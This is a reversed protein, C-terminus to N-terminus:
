WKGFEDESSDDEAFVDRGTFGSASAEKGAPTWTRLRGQGSPGVSMTRSPPSLSLRRAASASSPKTPSSLLLEDDDDDTAPAPLRPPDPLIETPTPAFKSPSAKASTSPLPRASASRPAERPGKSLPPTSLGSTRRSVPEDASASTSALNPMSRSAIVKSPARSRHVPVDIILEFSHQRPKARPKKTVSAPKAPTLSFAASPSPAPRRPPPTPTPTPRQFVQQQTSKSPGAAPEPSVARRLPPSMDGFLEPSPSRRRPRAKPASSSSPSPSDIYIVERLPSTSPPPRPPGARGWSQPARGAAFSSPPTPLGAPRARSIPKSPASLARSSPSSPLPRSKARSSSPAPSALRFHEVARRLTSTTSSPRAPPLPARQPTKAPSVILSSSRRRRPTSAPPPPTAFLDLDDDDAATVPAPLMENGPRPTARSSPDASAGRALAELQQFELVEKLREAEKRRAERFVLSPQSPLEEMEGLEDESTYSEADSDTYDELEEEEDEDEDAETGDDDGRGTDQGVVIGGTEAGGYAGIAFGGAKSNRLIGRDEVFDLTTLDIIDDEEVPIARSRGPRHRRPTTGGGASAARARRAPMTTGSLASHRRQIDEWADQLRLTAQLRAQDRTLEEYRANIEARRAADTSSKRAAAASRPAPSGSGSPGSANRRGGLSPPVSDVRRKKNPSPSDPDRYTSSSSSAAPFASSARQFEDLRLPPQFFPM